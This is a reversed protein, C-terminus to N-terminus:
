AMSGCDSGLVLISSASRAAPTARSSGASLGAPGEPPPAPDDRRRMLQMAARLRASRAMESAVDIARQRHELARADDLAVAKVAVAGAELGGLLRVVVVDDVEVGPRMTSNWDSL